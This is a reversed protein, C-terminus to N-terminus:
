LTGGPIFLYNTAAWEASVTSSIIRIRLAHLFGIDCTVTMWTPKIPAVGLSWVCQDWDSSDWIGVSGNTVYTLQSNSGYARFDTDISYQITMNGEFSLHPRLLTIQKEAPMGFQNYAQIVDGQIAAGSDSTGTWAQYVVGDCAYYLKGGVGLFCSANWNTFRCWAKTTLNMVFQTSYVDESYPLNIYLFNGGRFVGVCWGAVDKYAAVMPLYAGQVLFSLASTRDVITSQLFKSLPFLGNESLYVLDGGFDSLPRRGVPRGIEYVGVLGWATADAPDTGKYVAAEGASTIAVFYDDAGSGNDLTWSGTAVLKGGLKFLAGVPFETAAGAFADTPLYWLSMSDEEVFWLRKKHLSVYSLTNTAVGTIAPVSVGTIAAWASGDYKLLSDTGNVMILFSGGSNAFNTSIWDGSTCAIDAAGFTGSTSANYVGANTAAFLKYGGTGEWGHLSKIPDALGDIWTDSGKRLMVNTVDPFVNDMTVAQLPRMNSLNGNANWGEYPSPITTQRGVAEDQPIQRAGSRPSRVPPGRM